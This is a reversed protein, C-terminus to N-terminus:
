PMTRQEIKWASPEQVPELRSTNGELCAGDTYLTMTRISIYTKQAAKPKRRRKPSILFIRITKKQNRGEGNHRSIYPQVM